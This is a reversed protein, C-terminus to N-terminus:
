GCRFATAPKRVRRSRRVPARRVGIPPKNPDGEGSGGPPGGFDDREDGVRRGATSVVYDDDPPPVDARSAIATDAVFDSVFGLQPEAAAADDAQSRDVRESAGLDDIWALLADPRSELASELANDLVREAADSDLTELEPHAPAEPAKEVEEVLEPPLREFRM